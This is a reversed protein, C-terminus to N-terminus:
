AVELEIDTIETERENKEKEWKWGGGWDGRILDFLQVPPELLQAPVLGSNPLISPWAPNATIKQGKDRERPVRPEPSAPELPQGLKQLLGTTQIRRPRELVLQPPLFPGKRNRVPDSVQPPLWPPSSFAVWGQGVAEHLSRSRNQGGGGGRGWM